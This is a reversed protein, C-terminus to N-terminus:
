KGLCRIALLGAMDQRYEASAWQDGAHSYANRAALEIGSPEPGDMATVPARGTGGLVLRTRGSPWKAVAAFVIPEDSPTRSICEYALRVQLPIAIATILKAFLVNDRAALVEGLRMQEKGAVKSEVELTVDMALLCGALRSRGDAAIFSGAISAVQRLNYTTEQRIAERLSPQIEANESLTQLTAAAGVRLNNGTREIKNLGLSQLDVVAYGEQSPRNLVTGGGMVYTRPEVRVLYELAEDITQPRLYEVIM